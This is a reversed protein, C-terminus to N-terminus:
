LPATTSSVPGSRTAGPALIPTSPAFPAPGQPVEDEKMGRTFVDRGLTGRETLEAAATKYKQYEILKEVLERRPDELESELDVEVPLLMRSKIELLTYTPPYGSVGDNSLGNFTFGSTGDSLVTMGVHKACFEAVFPRIPVRDPMGGKMATTYRALRQQYLQETNM